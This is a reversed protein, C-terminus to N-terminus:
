ALLSIAAVKYAGFAPSIGFYNRKVRLLLRLLTGSM